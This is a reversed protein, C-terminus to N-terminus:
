DLQSSVATEVLGHIVLNNRRVDVEIQDLRTRLLENEHELDVLKLSQAECHNSILEKSSQEVQLDLKKSYADVLRNFVGEIILTLSESLREILVDKVRDDKLLDVFDEVKLSKKSM